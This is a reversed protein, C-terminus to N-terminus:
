LISPKTVDQRAFESAMLYLFQQPQGTVFDQIRPGYATKIMADYHHPRYRTISGLYFTIAYTALIQPLRAAREAAPCLYVYYRRYPPITSVTSWLNPKILNILHHLHDAPYNGAYNHPVVQELCILPRGDFVEQCAVERFNAHLNSETLMKNHSVSLRSLDDAIMYLRLWLQSAGPDYWFQIDHLAIFREPKKAAQAWLRHGSLVQPILFPLDYRGQAPLNAGTLSVMFEAFNNVRAPAPAAPFADLYADTLEKGGATIKESLGHQAQDFTPRAGRVLCFTKALNMYSYYLVLPRAAVIGKETGAVFFDRSQELCSLAEALRAKPCDKEVVQAIVTWPDLAFLLSQLAHHRRSPRSPWFSFPIPRRKVQLRQGARAQPLVPMQGRELGLIPGHPLTTVAEALM